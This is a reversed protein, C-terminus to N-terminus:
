TKGPHVKLAGYSDCCDVFEELVSARKREGLWYYVRAVDKFSGKRELAEACHEAKDKEGLKVWINAALYYHGENDLTKACEAARSSNGLEMWLQAASHYNLYTKDRGDREYAEAARDLKGLRLWTDPSVCGLKKEYEEACKEARVKDDLSLWLHIARTDMQKECKEACKRALSKRGLWLWSYAAVYYRGEKEYSKACDYAKDKRNLLGWIYAAKSCTKDKACEKACRAVKDTKGLKMYLEAASLYNGEKEIANVCIEARQKRGLELWLSAAYHYKWTSGTDGMSAELKAANEYAEAARDKKGLKIWIKPSDPSISYATECMKACAEAKDKKGLLIWIEAAALYLQPIREFAEAKDALRDEVSRSMYDELEPEKSVIGWIKAKEIARARGVRTKFYTLMEELDGQSIKRPVGRTYSNKELKVLKARAVALPSAQESKMYWEKAAAIDGERESIEGMLCYADYALRDPELAIVKRLDRRAEKYKGLMEFCMGRNYYASSFNRGAAVIRSYVKIAEAYKKEYFLDGARDYLRRAKPNSGIQANGVRVHADDFAM